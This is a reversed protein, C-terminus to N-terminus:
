FGNPGLVSQGLSVAYSTSISYIELINLINDYDDSFPTELQMSLFPTKLFISKLVRITLYSHSHKAIAMKM